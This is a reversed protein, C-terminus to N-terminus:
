KLRYPTVDIDSCILTKSVPDFVAKSASALGGTIAGQTEGFGYLPYGNKNYAQMSSIVNSNSEPFGPNEAANYSTQFLLSDDCMLSLNVTEVNATSEISNLYSVLYMDRSTFGTQEEGFTTDISGNTNLRGLFAQRGRNSFGGGAVVIKNDSQIVVSYGEFGGATQTSYPQRLGIYPVSISIRGNASGFTPDFAGDKTLRAVFLYSDSVNFTQYGVVICRDFSDLKMDYLTVEPAITTIGSIGFSSDLVGNDTLAVIHTGCTYITRSTSPQYVFGCRTQNNAPCSFTGFTAYTLDPSGDTNLRRVTSQASQIYGSYYIKGSIPHLFAGIVSGQGPFLAVGGVGFTADPAGTSSVRIFKSSNSSLVKDVFILKSDPQILTTFHDFNSAPGTYIFSPDLVGNVCSLPLAPVDMPNSLVSVLKFGVHSGELVTFIDSGGATQSVSVGIEDGINISLIDSMIISMIVLGTSSINAVQSRAVSVGNITIYGFCFSKLNSVANMRVNLAMDMQVYARYKDSIYSNAFSTPLKFLGNETLLLMSPVTTQESTIDFNSSLLPFVDSSNPLAISVALEIRGTAEVADKPISNTLVLGNSSSEFTLLNTQIESQVPPLTSQGDSYLNTVYLNSIKGYDFSVNAKSDIVQKDGCRLTDIHVDANTHGKYSM